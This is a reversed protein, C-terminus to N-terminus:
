RRIDQSRSHFPKGGPHPQCPRPRSRHIGMSTQGIIALISLSSPPAINVRRLQSRSSEIESNSGPRWQLMCGQQWSWARSKGLPIWRNGDEIDVMGLRVADDATARREEFNTEMGLVYRNTPGFQFKDYYGFYHHKPGRTIAKCPVIHESHDVAAEAGPTLGHRIPVACAMAAAGGAMATRYLFQRRTQHM